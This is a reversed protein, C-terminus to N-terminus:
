YILKQIEYQYKNYYKFSIGNELNIDFLDYYTLDNRRTDFDRYRCVSYFLDESLNQGILLGYIKHKSGEYKKKFYNVYRNVQFFAKYDLLNKKLEIIFYARLDPAYGFIDIIGVETNVQNKLPIIGFHLWLNNAIRRYGKEYKSYTQILYYELEKESFIIEMYAGIHQCLFVKSKISKQLTVM